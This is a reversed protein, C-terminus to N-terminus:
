WGERLRSAHRMPLGAMIIRRQVADVDYAVRRYTWPLAEADDHILYSAKPNRDRPQGVSGPNVISKTELKFPRDPLHVSLQVEGEEEDTLSFVCPYHTHGVLCIPTEFERMNERAVDVDMVYEWVPSRPSAHVITFAGVEVLSPREKLWHYNDPTLQLSLWELSLRASNNFVNIDIDGIIAADHNGKVCTLEPLAKLTEICENPDPGYGVVDGLCFVRDFPAADELVTQLATLNSHIDSLILTRM